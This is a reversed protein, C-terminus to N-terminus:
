EIENMGAPPDTITRLDGNEEKGDSIGDGPKETTVSIEQAKVGTDTVIKTSTTRLEKSVDYNQTGYLYEHLATVNGALDAAVLCSGKGKVDKAEYAFPFGVTGVIKYGSIDKVLEHIDDKNLSTSICKFSVDVFADLSGADAKLLKSAVKMLVIRQRETRTVDGKDTSRIRSYAVAQQGDLNYTGPATIGESYKGSLSIQEALNKNFNNIESETVDVEVGGVADIISAMADFNVAVYDTINLDMNVNLTNIATVPGGLQYAYNVKHTDTISDGAIEMLTDRYVSVLKIEKTSENISVIIISDSNVGADMSSDRSDVGYLAITRYGNLESVVGSNFMLQDQSIEKIDMEKYKMKAYSKAYMACIVIFLFLLVFFAVAWVKTSIQNRKKEPKKKKNVLGEDLLNEKFFKESDSETEEPEEEDDILEVADFGLAKGIEGLELDQTDSESYHLNNEDIDREIRSLADMDLMDDTHYASIDDDSDDSSDGNDSVSADIHAADIDSADIHSDDIDKDDTDSADIDSDSMDSDSMDSDDIDLDDIATEETDSEETHAGDIDAIASAFTAENGTISDPVAEDDVPANEEAEALIAELRAEEEEEEQLKQMQAMVRQRRAEEEARQEKELELREVEARAKAVNRQTREWAARRLEEHKTQTDAELNNVQKLLNDVSESPQPETRRRANEPIVINRDARRRSQADASAKRARIDEHYYEDHAKVPKQTRNKQSDGSDPKAVSTKKSSTNGQMTRDPKREVRDASGKPQQKKQVTKEAVAPKKKKKKRDGFLLAGILGSDDLYDDDDDLWDMDDEYMSAKRNNKGM